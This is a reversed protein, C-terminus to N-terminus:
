EVRKLVIDGTVTSLNFRDNGNKSITGIVKGYKTYARVVASTYIVSITGSQTTVEASESVKNLDCRGDNLSVKLLDYGGVVTVNCNTGFVHVSKQKPLVIKLAISVVKHASLKDNPNVFNPQFGASIKLTSGEELVQLLLDKEYEGDIQGEIVLADGTSTSLDLEFCNKVDVQIHTIEANVISKKVAKQASSNHIYFICGFFFLAAKLYNGGFLGVLNQFGQLDFITKRYIV